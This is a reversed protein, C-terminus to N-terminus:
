FPSEDAGASAPVGAVAQYEPSQAIREQMWEQLSGYIDADFGDELSLYVTKEPASAEMGSPLKMIGGLTARGNANHQVSLMCGVGILNKVDFGGDGFDSDKFPAGRWAELHKRFTSKTSSSFSYEKGIVFNRGDSMQEGPVEFGLWVKRRVNTRGEYTDEQTGFDIVQFCTAIHSGASLPKFESAPTPMKM